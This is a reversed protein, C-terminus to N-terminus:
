AFFTSTFTLSTIRMSMVAGVTITHSSTFEQRANLASTEDRVMM